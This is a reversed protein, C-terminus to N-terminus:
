DISYDVSIVVRVKKILESTGSAYYGGGQAAAMEDRDAITFLGQSASKLKGLTTKSERTFELAAANANRTAEALMDPKIDNLKTFIFRPSNGQWENTSSLVVGAQLLEDTMRSVRLVNEVDTSRVQITKAVVYRLDVPIKSGEYTSAQRDRVLLDRQMIENSDIRNEHLFQIVKVKASEIRRSGEALDRSTVEIRLSWLALDAKVERESLGRVSIYRDEKRFREISGGLYWSFLVVGVLITIALIVVSKRDM